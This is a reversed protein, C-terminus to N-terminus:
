NEYHMLMLLKLEVKTQCSCLKSWKFYADIFNLWVEDAFYSTEM